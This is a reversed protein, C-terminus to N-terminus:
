DVYAIGPPLHPKPFPSNEYARLDLERLFENRYCVSGKPLDKYISLIYPDEWVDYSTNVKVNIRKINQPVNLHKKSSKLKYFVSNLESIFWQFHM